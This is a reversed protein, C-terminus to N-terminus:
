SSPSASISSPMPVLVYTPKADPGDRRVLGKEVLRALVPVLRGYGGREAEGNGSLERLIAKRLMPASARRLVDLVATEEYEGKSTPKTPAEHWEIRLGGNATDLVEFERVDSGHQRGRGKTMKLTSRSERDKRVVRLVVDAWNFSAGSGALTQWEARSSTGKAEHALIIFTHKAPGHRLPDLQRLARLTAINDIEPVDGLLPRLSDIIFVLETEERCLQALRDFGPGTLTIGAHHGFRIRRSIAEPTVSRGVALRRARSRVDEAHMEENIVVVRREAAVPYKGFSAGTSCALAIALDLTLMSKGADGRGAILVADGLQVLDGLIYERPPEEHLLADPPDLWSAPATTPLFLPAQDLLERVAEVGSGVLVENLDKRGGPYRVRGIQRKGVTYLTEAIAAAAADGAEDGDTAVIVTDFASALAELAPAIKKTNRAGSPLSVAFFGADLASLADIVGETIVVCDMEKPPACFQVLASLADKGIVRYRSSKLADPDLARAVRVRRRPEVFSHGVFVLEPRGAHVGYELDLGGTVWATELGREKILYRAAQARLKLRDSASLPDVAARDRGANGIVASDATGTAAVTRAKALVLDFQTRIALGQTIAVADLADGRAGCAHCFFLGESSVSMSPEDDPHEPSICPVVVNGALPLRRGILAAMVGRRQEPDM